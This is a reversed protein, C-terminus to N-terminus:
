QPVSEKSGTVRVEVELVLLLLFLPLLPLLLTQATVQVIKTCLFMNTKVEELKLETIFKGVEIAESPASM